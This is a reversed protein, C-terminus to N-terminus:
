LPHAAADNQIDIFRQRAMGEQLPSFSSGTATGIAFRHVFVFAPTHQVTLSIGYTTKGDGRRPKKEALFTTAKQM